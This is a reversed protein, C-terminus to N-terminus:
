EDRRRGQLAEALMGCDGPDDRRKTLRGPCDDRLGWVEIGWFNEFEDIYWHEFEARFRNALAAIIPYPVSWATDFEIFMRGDPMTGTQGRKANWKTGWNEVNWTYWNCPFDKEDEMSLGAKYLHLPQPILLNFDLRQGESCCREVVATADVEKAFILRNTVWNPM